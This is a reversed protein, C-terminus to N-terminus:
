KKDIWQVHRALVTAARDIQGARLATLIAQHDRDTPAEWESRWGSLLFRASTSHLDDITKLLRPM